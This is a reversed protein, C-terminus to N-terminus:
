PRPSACHLCEIAVAAADALNRDDGGCAESVALCLQPRVRREALFYRCTELRRGSPSPCPNAEIRALLAELSSEIRLRITM